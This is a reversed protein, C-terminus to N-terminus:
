QPDLEPDLLYLIINTEMCFMLLIKLPIDTPRSNSHGNVSMLRVSAQCYGGFKMVEIVRISLDM